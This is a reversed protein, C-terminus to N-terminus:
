NTFDYRKGLLIFVEIGPWLEKQFNPIIGELAPSHIVLSPPPPQLFAKKQKQNMYNQLFSCVTELPAVVVAMLSILTCCM